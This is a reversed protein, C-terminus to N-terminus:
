FTAQSFAAQPHSLSAVSGHTTLCQRTGLGAPCKKRHGLGSEWGHPLVKGDQKRACLEARGSARRQECLVARCNLLLARGLATHEIDM